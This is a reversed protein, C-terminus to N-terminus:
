RKKETAPPEETLGVEGDASVEVPLALAEAFVSAADAAARTRALKKIEEGLAKEYDKEYQEEAAKLIGPPINKSGLDKRAKDFHKEVVGAALEAARTEIAKRLPSNYLVTMQGFRNEVGIADLVLKSFATDLLRHVSQEINGEHLSRGDNSVFEALWQERATHIKKHVERLRAASRSQLSPIPSETKKLARPGKPDFM